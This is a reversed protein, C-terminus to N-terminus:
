YHLVSHWFLKGIINVQSEDAIEDEYEDRNYSRILIKGQPRRYLCKLRKLGDQEIAYIKGDIIKKNAIDIAVATGDPIIPEMSDGKAPFCLVTSGNTSAGVKRLTAKSFRLKFGNYDMDICNGSGCAFEIDKLFPVEVEDNDLPTGSDWPAITTWESEPPIESKVHHLGTTSILKPEGVGNLLWDLSYGLKECLSQAAEKSITDRRLWNNVTQSSANLLQALEKQKLNERNLIIKLRDKLTM